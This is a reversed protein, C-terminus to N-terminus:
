GVCDLGTGDTNLWSRFLALSCFSPLLLYRMTHCSWHLQPPPLVALMIMWALVKQNQTVAVAMVLSFYVLLALIGEAGSLLDFKTTAEHLLPLTLVISTGGFFAADTRQSESRGRRYAMVLWFVAYIAGMLLGVAKPVFEYDTIARLLYAGGFILLVRGVHTSANTAFGDDLRPAAAERDYDPTVETGGELAALRNEVAALRRELDAISSTM